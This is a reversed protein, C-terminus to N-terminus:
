QPTPLQQIFELSSGISDFRSTIIRKASYGLNLHQYMRHCQRRLLQVAEPDKWESLFPHLELERSLRVWATGPMINPDYQEHKLQALGRHDCREICGRLDNYYNTWTRLFEIVDEIDEKVDVSALNNIVKLVEDREPGKTILWPKAIQDMKILQRIDSDIVDPPFGGVNLMMKLKSVRESFNSATSMRQERIVDRLEKPPDPGFQELENVLSRFFISTGEFDRRKNRIYKQYTHHNVNAGEQSLEHLGKLGSHPMRGASVHGNVKAIIADRNGKVYDSNPLSLVTKIEDIPAQELRNKVKGEFEPRMRSNLPFLSEAEITEKFTKQDNLFIRQGHDRALAPMDASARRAEDSYVELEARQPQIMSDAEAVSGLEDRPISYHNSIEDRRIGRWEYDKSITTQAGATSLIDQTFRFRGAGLDAHAQAGLIQQSFDPSVVWEPHGGFTHFTESNSRHRIGRLTSTTKSLRLQSPDKPSSKVGNRKLKRFLFVSNAHLRGFASNDPDQTPTPVSPLQLYDPHSGQVIIDPTPPLADTLRAIIDIANPYAGSGFCLLQFSSGGSVGANGSDELMHRSKWTFDEEVLVCLPHLETRKQVHETGDVTIRSRELTLAHAADEGYLPLSLEGRQGYWEVKTDRSVNLIDYYLQYQTSSGTSRYDVWIIPCISNKREVISRIEEEELSDKQTRSARVTRLRPNDRLAILHKLYNDVLAWFKEQLARHRHWLQLRPSFDNISTNLTGKLKDKEEILDEYDLWDHKSMTRNIWDLFTRKDARTTELHDYFKGIYGYPGWACECRNPRCGIGHGPLPPINGIKANECWDYISHLLTRLNRNTGDKSSNFISTTYAIGVLPNFAKSWAQQSAFHSNAIVMGLAFDALGIPLKNFPSNPDQIFTEDKDWFLRSPQNSLSNALDDKPNSLKWKESDSIKVLVQEDIDLLIEGSSNSFFHKAIAIAWDNRRSAM